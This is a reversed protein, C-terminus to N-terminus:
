SYITDRTKFDGHMRNLCISKARAGYQDLIVKIKVYKGVWSLPCGREGCVRELLMQPLSRIGSSVLRFKGGLSNKFFYKGEVELLKPLAAKTPRNSIHTM